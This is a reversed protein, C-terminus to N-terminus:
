GCEVASRWPLRVRVAVLRRLSHSAMVGACPSVYQRTVNISTYAAVPGLLLQTCYPLVHVRQAPQILLGHLQRVVPHLLHAGEGVRRELWRNIQV